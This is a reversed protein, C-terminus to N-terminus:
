LLLLGDIINKGKDVSDTWRVYCGKSELLRMEYLQAETPKQGPAKLELFLVAGGPAIILRDPVSRRQPSTFKYALCGRKLAYARVKEEVDKERVIKLKTKM